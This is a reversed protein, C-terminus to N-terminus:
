QPALWRISEKTQSPIEISTPASTTLQRTKTGFRFSSEENCIVTRKFQQETSFRQPTTCDGSGDTNKFVSLTLYSILISMSM